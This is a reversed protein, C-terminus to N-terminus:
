ANQDELDKIFRKIRKFGKEIIEDSTAYSVRIYDDNGFVFGPLLAVEYDSLLINAADFSTEIPKSKYHRGKIHSIDIFAYFAGKPDVVSLLPTKEILEKILNRRRIFHKIMEAKSGDDDKLATLGAYQSISSPNSTMHSQFSSMAEIIDANAACYGLRWGTMAYSKSFGSVTITLNKIDENFKAISIHRGEYVLDEYIEDSLVLVNNDVAWEAIKRLEDETYVIGLPNSPNNIILCKTNKTKNQDLLEVTIKFDNDKNTDVIVPTGDGIKVMEPYSLWYPSPIIVEDGSNLISMLATVITQKAGTSVIINENSYELGNFDKFKKCIESKLEPIGSAATYRTKGENIAKIAGEKIYQPTEFDPEGVTLNVLDIGEKIMEKAKASIALTLSPAINNGKESIYM